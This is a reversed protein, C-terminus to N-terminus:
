FNPYFAASSKTGKRVKNSQLTYKVDPMAGLEEQTYVGPKESGSKGMKMGFREDIETYAYYLPISSVYKAPFSDVFNINAGNISYRKLFDDLNNHGFGIVNFM